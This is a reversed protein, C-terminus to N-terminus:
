LASEVEQLAAIADRIGARVTDDETSSESGGDGRVTVSGDSGDVDTAPGAEDSADTSVDDLQQQPDSDSETAEPGSQEESTSPRGGRGSLADLPFDYARARKEKYFTSRRSVGFINIVDPRDMGNDPARRVLEDEVRQMLVQSNSPIHRRASTVVQEALGWQGTEVDKDVLQADRDAVQNDLGMLVWLRERVATVSVDATLAATIEGTSAPGHVALYRLIEVGNRSVVDLEADTLEVPVEDPDAQHHLWNHCSRCLVTLNEPDHEDMGDPDREIHHVELKANGGREPGLRGRGQCRYGYEELMADRTAPDVTEHCESAAESSANDNGSSAGDTLDATEDTM